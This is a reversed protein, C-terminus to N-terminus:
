TQAGPERIKKVHDPERQVSKKFTAHSGSLLFVFPLWHVLWQLWAQRLYGEWGTLPWTQAGPERIKKVHGPERQAFEPWQVTAVMSAVAVLGAEFLGRLWNTVMHSSWTRPSFISSFLIRTSLVPADRHTRWLLRAAPQTKTFRECRALTRWKKIFLGNIFFSMESKGLKIFIRQNTCFSAQSKLNSM